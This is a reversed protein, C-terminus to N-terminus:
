IYVKYLGMDQDKTDNVFDILEQMKDLLMWFHDDTWTMGKPYIGAHNFFVPDYRARLDSLDLENLAEAILKVDQSNYFTVFDWGMEGIELRKGVLFDLPFSVADSNTDVESTLLYYLAQSMGGITIADPESQPTWQLIKEKEAESLGDLLSPENIMGFHLIEFRIPAEQLDAIDSDSVVHISLSVSMFLEPYTCQTNFRKLVDTQKANL